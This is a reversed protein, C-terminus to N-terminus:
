KVLVPGVNDMKFLMGQEPKIEVLGPAQGPKLTKSIDCTRHISIHLQDKNLVALGVSMNNPTNNWIVTEALNTVSVTTEPIVIQADEVSSDVAKEVHSVASVTSMNESMM